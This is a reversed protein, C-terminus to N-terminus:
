QLDTSDPTRGRVGTLMELDEKSFIEALTPTIKEQREDKTM